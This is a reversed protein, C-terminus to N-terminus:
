TSRKLFRAVMLKLSKQKGHSKQKYRAIQVKLKAEVLDIAAYMNGTGEKAQLKSHHPVSVIGECVYHNGEKGSPDYSLIVEGHGVSRVEKPLYKELGGIKKEVYEILNEDLEYRHGTIDLKIM